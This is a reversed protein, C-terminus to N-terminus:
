ALPQGIVIRFGLHYRWADPPLRSRYTCRAHTPNSACSSGRLTYRGAEHFPQAAGPYSTYQDATWEWVNGICDHLGYASVGSSYCGVPATYWAGRGDVTNARASDWEDGWPYRRKTQCGADWSAAKEWEAERPLRVVQGQPLQGARALWVSLWACYDTADHWTVGVVPCAPNNFRPDYWYRPRSHATNEALFAAYARNTVPHISIAFAPVDVWQPPGEDAYGCDAGLIYPGAPVPALLLPEDARTGGLRGLLLGAQVRQEIPCALSTMLAALRECVSVYITHEAPSRQDMELLCEAALLLDRQNKGHTHETTQLLRGLLTLVGHQAPYLGAGHVSLLLTEHWRPDDRLAYARAPFDSQQALSCAALYERLLRHPMTYAAPGSAALLGTRRCWRVMDGISDAGARRREISAMSRNESLYTKIEAYSLALPQDNGPELRQQFAFALPELVALWRETTDTVDEGRARVVGRAADARAREWGALLGRALRRLVIAREAPLTLGEAHALVCLTLGRPNSALERLGEDGHLAGQLRVIRESLEEPMFINIHDALAGYWRASLADMRGQDLPALRYRLFSALGAVVGTDLARWSMLYRNDPYRSVFRGLAVLYARQDPEAPFDDLDDILILCDGRELLLQITPVLAELGSYQLWREIAAWFAAPGPLDLGDPAADAHALAMAIERANLLIPLPIPDPWDAVLRAGSAPEGTAHAACALAIMQLCTTKGSGSDGELLVRASPARVLNLLTSTQERAHPVGAGSAQYPALPLLAREIYLDALQLYLDGWTSPGPQPLYRVQDVLMRQYALLLTDGDTARRGYASRDTSAAKDGPQDEAPAGLARLEGKIHAIEGRTEDFQHWIYPPTFAGFYARQTELVEITRRHVALLRQLAAIPDSEDHM